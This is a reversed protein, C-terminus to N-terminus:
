LLRWRHRNQALDFWDTGSGVGQLDTKIGNEWGHGHRGLMRKGEHKEVFVQICRKQDCYISCSGGM